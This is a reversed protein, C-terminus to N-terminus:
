KYVASFRLHGGYSGSERNYYNAYHLGYFFGVAPETYVFGCMSKSFWRVHNDFSSILMYRKFEKFKLFNHAWFGYLMMKYFFYMCSSNYDFYFSGINKNKFFRFWYWMYLRSIEMHLEESPLAHEIYFGFNEFRYWLMYVLYINNEIHFNLRYNTTIIHLGNKIYFMDGVMLSKQINSIDYINNISINWFNLVWSNRIFHFSPIFSLKFLINDIRFYLLHYAKYLSYPKGFRNLLSAM